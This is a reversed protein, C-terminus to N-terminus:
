KAAALSSAVRRMEEQNSSPKASIEAICANPGGPVEVHYLFSPPSGGPKTVYFSRKASNEFLKDINLMKLTEDDWPSYASPGQRVLARMHDRSSANGPNSLVTWNPPVLIQCAGTKDKIAHWGSQGMLMASFLLGFALKMPNNYARLDFRRKALVRHLERVSGGTCRHKVNAGTSRPWRFM